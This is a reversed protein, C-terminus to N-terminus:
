KEKDDVEIFYPKWTPPADFDYSGEIAQEKTDYRRENDEAQFGCEIGYEECDFCRFGFTWHKSM